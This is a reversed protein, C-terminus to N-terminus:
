SLSGLSTVVLDVIAHPALTAEVVLGLEDAGLPELIALQSPLLTAAMYAHHRDAIRNSILAESGSLMVFYTTPAFERLLDRYTRKLASCTAVVGGQTLRAGVARLWPVREADTLPHGSAMRAVNAPPQLDDGEIFPRGLRRALALGVTTKGSGEVGMVVISPSGAHPM